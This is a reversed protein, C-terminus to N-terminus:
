SDSFLRDFLKYRNNKVHDRLFYLCIGGFGLYTPILIFFWANIQITTLIGMLIMLGFAVKQSTGGRLQFASNVKRAMGFSALLSVPFIVSVSTLYYVILIGQKAPIFAIAVLTLALDLLLPFSLLRWFERVYDIPSGSSLTIRLWVQRWYGWTNNYVYTFLVVPSFFIWFVPQNKLLGDVDRSTSYHVTFFLIALKLVLGILLPIGAKANFLVLKLALPSSSIFNWSLQNKTEIRAQFLLFGFLFLLLALLAIWVVAWQLSPAVWVLLSSYALISRGISFLLGLSNFRFELGYQVLRRLAHAGLGSSILLCFVIVQNKPLQYVLLGSFLFLYFFYLHQVEQVLSVMYRRSPSVPWFDPIPHHLPRYAPFFARVFTLIGVLGALYFFVHEERGQLFDMENAKQIMLAFVWSYLVTLSFLVVHFVMRWPSTLDRFMSKWRLQLFQGIM